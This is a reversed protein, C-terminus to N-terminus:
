SSEHSCRLCWRNTILTVLIETYKKRKHILYFMKYNTYKNTTYQKHITKLNLDYFHSLPGRSGTTIWHTDASTLLNFVAAYILVAIHTWLVTEGMDTRFSVGAKFSCCRWRLSSGLSPVPQTHCNLLTNGIYCSRKKRDWQSIQFRIEYWLKCATDDRELAYNVERKTSM